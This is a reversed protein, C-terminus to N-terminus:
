LAAIADIQLRHLAEAFAQGKLNKAQLPKIDIANVAALARHLLADNAEPHDIQNALASIQCAQLFTNFREPRRLGDASKLLHFIQEASATQIKLYTHYWHATLNALDTYDRPTRLRQCLQKVAVPDTQHLLTAFRVVSHTTMTAAKQLAQMGPGALAIEPFLIGLADCDALVAFFRQPNKEGLARQFEKWVREAVLADVEGNNVMTQMLTNTEPFVTFDPLKAAFRAIRLIRVPDEAFAPSVHRLLKAALDEQGGYPDILEGSASRAMANISLDRRKLDDALTVDPAAYFTFGKYGKGVKRETRALAYEEKTDPHLFVPFEKGVPQFGQALMSEPTAGVVVWDREKVPIGLLEDRIAGGVLYIDLVIGEIAASHKDSYGFGPHFM